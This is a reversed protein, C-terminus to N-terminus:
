CWGPLQCTLVREGCQGTSERWQRRGCPFITICSIAGDIWSFDAAKNRATSTRGTCVIVEEKEKKKRM